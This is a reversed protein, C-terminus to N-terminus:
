DPKESDSVDFEYQVWWHVGYKIRVGCNVNGVDWYKEYDMPRGGERTLETRKWLQFEEMRPCGLALSFTEVHTSARTFDTPAVDVVLNTVHSSEVTRRGFHVAKVDGSFLIRQGDTVKLRVDGDYTMYLRDEKWTGVRFVGPDVRQSLDINIAIFRAGRNRRTVDCGSIVGVMLMVGIVVKARCAFAQTVSYVNGYNSVKFSPVKM